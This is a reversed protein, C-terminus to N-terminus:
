INVGVYTVEIVDYGAAYRVALSSGYGFLKPYLHVNHFYLM